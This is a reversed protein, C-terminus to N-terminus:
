FGVFEVVRNHYVQTSDPSPNEASYYLADDTIWIDCDLAIDTPGRQREADPLAATLAAFWQAVRPLVAGKQTYLIRWLRGDLLFLLVEEDAAAESPRLFFASIQAGGLTAMSDGKYVPWAPLAAHIDALSMGGKLPADAGPLTIALEPRHIFEAAEARAAADHFTVTYQFLSVDSGDAATTDLVSQVFEAVGTWEYANIERHLQHYGYRHAGPARAKLERWWDTLEVNWIMITFLSLTDARLQMMLSYPRAESAVEAVLWHETAGASSDDFTRESLTTAALATRIDAATMGCRLTAALEPLSIDGLPATAPAVQASGPLTLAILLLLSCYFTM